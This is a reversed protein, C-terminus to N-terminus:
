RRHLPAKVAAMELAPVIRRRDWAIERWFYRFTDRAQEYARQMEPGGDDALFVQSPQAVSM